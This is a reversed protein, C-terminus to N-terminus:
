SPVGPFMIYKFIVFEKSINTNYISGVM